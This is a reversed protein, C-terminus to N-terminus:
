ATFRSRLVHETIPNSDPLVERAASTLVVHSFQLHSAPKWMLVYELPFKQWTSMDFVFVNTKEEACPRNWMFCSYFYFMCLSVFAVSARFPNPRRKNASFVRLAEFCIQRPNTQAWCLLPTQWSSTNSTIIDPPPITPDAMAQENPLHPKLM